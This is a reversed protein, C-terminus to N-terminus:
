SAARRPTLADSTQVESSTWEDLAPWSLEELRDAGGFGTRASGSESNQVGMAIPTARTSLGRGISQPDHTPAYEGRESLPVGFLHRLVRGADGVHPKTM